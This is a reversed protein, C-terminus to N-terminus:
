NPKLLCSDLSATRVAFDWSTDATLDSSYDPTVTPAKQLQCILHFRHEDQGPRAWLGGAQIQLSRLLYSSM